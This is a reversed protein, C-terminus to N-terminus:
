EAHDGGGLAASLAARTRTLEAKTEALGTGAAIVGATYGKVFLPKLNGDRDRADNAAAAKLHYMQSIENAEAESAIFVWRGDAMIVSGPRQEHGCCSAVTPMGGENLARVLPELCPDCWIGDRNQREPTGPDLIVM